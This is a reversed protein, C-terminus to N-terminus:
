LAMAMVIERGPGYWLETETDSTVEFRAKRYMAMSAELADITELYVEGWAGARAHDMAANMLARGVAQGRAEPVVCFWRLQVRAGRDIMAICGVPEGGDTEAIWLRSATEVGLDADAITQVLHREFGDMAAGSFRPGQDSYARRHLAHVLARDGARLDSRLHIM